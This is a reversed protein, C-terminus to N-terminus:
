RKAATEGGERTATAGCADRLRQVERPIAGGEPLAPRMDALVADLVLRAGRARDRCQLDATYARALWAAKRQELDSSRTQGLVILRALAAVDGQQAQLRALSIEARRTHSHQPGFGARTLRAANELAVRAAGPQQLAALIEGLLRESDGVLAHASGYQRGRLQVAERALPLADRDRGADHLIMALNFVGGAILGANGTQRWAAVAQRQLHLARASGGREWAVIALSNYARAMDPHRDDLRVGMWATTDVFIAEAEAFRGLDVYLAALQRNADVTARHNRGHLEEALRLSERCDRSAADLADTARELSCLARLMSIAQPHHTGLSQRLEALGHSLIRIAQDPRGRESELSALDLRTEAVGAEDKERRRLELARAHLRQAADFEGQERRCRGLQAYFAAAQLPLRPEERQARAEEPQMRAVCRRPDGLQQAVNGSLTASELWLSAPADPLLPLLRAQRDLLDRAERYDGLGLRLQAVAGYLEARAEPQRALSREGRLIGMDLLSRLDIPANPSSGADQFLETVFRQMAQARAAERLARQAQWGVVGLAVSLMVLIALAAAIAWRHRQLYKHTRYGFSEGRALVPRGRLYSLLDHSLAEASVYRRTPCKALAKLVINDLDGALGHALRAPSYPRSAEPEARLAAQSPKQPVGDLIAEEWEADTQRKLRYPKSGTLLEYLVVGLSYVDTMTTVPEGRIQEPAAYHLTFARVGTRTQEVPPPEVDLLKAIGFDLLRVQGAPTVLINSPKLDRHVILNAHAHSVAECVQRFLDLRAAIDLQRSQCYSTIPEGEVYELALYPQGNHDIGADLLRAIHPHAFRALIDRERDFRQRLQPNALGPRLLKLAVKREYMGDAREALWVQGMGGEGLLRELRYPGLRAGPMAGAPLHMAPSDLFSADGADLTLLQGLEAALAPDEGRLTRLHEERQDAPLELLADLLPSLRQWREIDM